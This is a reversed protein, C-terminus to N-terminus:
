AVFVEDTSDGEVELYQKTDPAVELKYVGIPLAVDWTAASAITDVLPQFSHDLIVAERGTHRNDFRIVRDFTKVAAAGPEATGFSMEDVPGFSPKSAIDPNDRDQQPQFSGLSGRLYDRLSASTVTGSDPDRAAGKLGQLLAYTFVGHIKGDPMQREVSRLPHRAAYSVFLRGEAFNAAQRHALLAESPAGNIPIPDSCADMWLVFEKFYANRYFWDFWSRVYFHHLISPNANATYVGGDCDGVGFGHGAFYVYLRRGLQLRNADKFRNILWGFCGALEEANPQALLQRQGAVLGTNFPDPFMDSTVLLRNDEPVGGGQPDALWDHIEKADLDPGQLDHPHGPPHPPSLLPYRSIGIVIAYDEPNM